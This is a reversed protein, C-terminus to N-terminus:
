LNHHHTGARAPDDIDDSDIQRPRPPDLHRVQREEHLVAAADARVEVVSRVTRLRATMAVTATAATRATHSIAGRRPRTSGTNVLRGDSTSAALTSMRFLPVNSRSEITLRDSNAAPNASASIM